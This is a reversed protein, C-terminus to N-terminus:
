KKFVKNALVENVEMYNNSKIGHNRDYKNLNIVYEIWEPEISTIMRECNFRSYEKQEDGYLESFNPYGDELFKIAFGGLQMYMKRVIDNNDIITSRAIEERTLNFTKISTIAKNSIVRTKGEKYEEDYFRSLLIGDLKPAYGYYTRIKALMESKANYHSLLIIFVVRAKSVDVGKKYLKYLDYVIDTDFITTLENLYKITNPYLNEERHLAHYDIRSDRNNREELFEDLRMFFKHSYVERELNSLSKIKESYYQETIRKDIKKIQEQLCGRTKNLTDDIDLHIIEFLIGMERCLDMKYKTIALMIENFNILNNSPLKLIEEKTLNWYKTM